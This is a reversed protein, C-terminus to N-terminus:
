AVIAEHVWTKVQQVANSLVYYLWRHDDMDGSLHLERFAPGNERRRSAMDSMIGRFRAPVTALLKAGHRERDRDYLRMAVKLVLVFIAALRFTADEDAGTASRALDFEFLDSRAGIYNDIRPTMDLYLYWVHLVAANLLSLDFDYRAQAFNAREISFSVLGPSLIKDENPDGETHTSPMVVINLNDCHTALHDM